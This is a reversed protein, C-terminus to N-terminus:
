PRPRGLALGLLPVFQQGSHMDREVVGGQPGSRPYSFKLANLADIDFRRVCAHDVGLVTAVNDAHLAPDERFAHFLTTNSFFIDVTVWFPGANKSRVYRTVEALTPM